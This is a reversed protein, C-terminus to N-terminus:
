AGGGGQERRRFGEAVEEYRCWEVEEGFGKL